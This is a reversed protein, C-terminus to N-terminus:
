LVKVGLNPIVVVSKNKCHLTVSVVKYPLVCSTPLACFLTTRM